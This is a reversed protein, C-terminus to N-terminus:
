TTSVHITCDHSNMHLISEQEFISKRQDKLMSHNLEATSSKSSHFVKSCSSPTLDIYYIFRNPKKKILGIFERKPELQGQIRKINPTAKEFSRKNKWFLSGDSWFEDFDRRTSCLWQFPLIVCYLVDIADDVTSSKISLSWSNILLFFFIEKLVASFLMLYAAIIM